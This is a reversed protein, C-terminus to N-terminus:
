HILYVKIDEKEISEQEWRDHINEFTKIYRM